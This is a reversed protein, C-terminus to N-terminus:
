LVRCSPCMRKIKILIHVRPVSLDLTVKSAVLGVPSLMLLSLPIVGREGSMVERRDRRDLLLVLLTPIIILTHLPNSIGKMVQRTGPEV